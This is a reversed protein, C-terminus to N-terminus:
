DHIWAVAGRDVGHIKCWAGLASEWAARDEGNRLIPNRFPYQPPANGSYGNITPKGTELQAWMADVQVFAQELFSDADGRPTYLFAQCDPPVRASVDAVRRRSEEKSFTPPTRGQELVCVLVLAAAVWLRKREHVFGAAGASLAFLVLLGVRFGARVVAGGPVCFYVVYWLTVPGIATALVALAAAAILLFYGTPSRRMQCLGCAGVAPTVFGVGLQNWGPAGPIAHLFPIWGYLWSTPDILFWAWPSPLGALVANLDRVGVEGAALLYHWALPAALAASAASCLLVSWWRRRLVSFLAARTSGLVCAAAVAALLALGLFWGLYFSAYIQLVSSMSFSAFWLVPGWRATEDDATEFFRVLAYVAIVTYFHPYVQPHVIEAVRSNGATFLLAGLAAAVSRLRLVRALLAYMTLYNLSSITLLWLQFATDIPVGAARWCWYFPGASVLVDSYAATNAAPYFIPPSWLDLHLPDRLLWRLTHELLYNVLRADGLDGPVLALGSLLMPHFDLLLAAAWGLLCLLFCSPHLIFALRGIGKIM